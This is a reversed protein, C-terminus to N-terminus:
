YRLQSSAQDVWEKLALVNTYIMDVTCEYVPVRPSGGPVRNKITMRSTIGVLMPGNVTELMAPGGSDGYCSGKNKLSVLFETQSYQPNLVVQNVARLLAPAKTSEAGASTRGYGALLVQTGSQIRSFDELWPMVRFGPPIPSALKLVAVDLWDFEKEPGNGYARIQNLVPIMTGAVNESHTFHVELKADGRVGLCHGATLILDDALIVGSCNFSTKQVKVKILVTSLAVPDTALLEWGGIIFPEVRNEASASSILFVLATVLGWAKM